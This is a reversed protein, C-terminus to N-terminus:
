RFMENVLHLDENIKRIDKEREEIIAEDVDVLEHMMQQQQFAVPGSASNDYANSFTDSNSNAPISREVRISTHDKTITQFQAFLREYDRQIKVASVRRAAAEDRPLDNV